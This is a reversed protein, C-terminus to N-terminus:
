TSEKFDKLLDYSETFAPEVQNVVDALERKAENLWERAKNRMDDNSKKAMMVFCAKVLLSSAANKDLWESAEALWGRLRDVRAAQAAPLADTDFLQVDDTSTHHLAPLFHTSAPIAIGHALLASRVAPTNLLDALVRANVEGSQGGCAGCDLAAAHANNCSQSGHGVLLVLPARRRDLGMSRLIRAALAAKGAVDLGSLAPRVRARYRRPLGSLEDRPRAAAAM